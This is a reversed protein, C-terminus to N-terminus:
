HRVSPGHAQAEVGAIGRRLSRPRVLDLVHREAEGGFDQTPQRLRVFVGLVLGLGCPLSRPTNTAATSVWQRDGKAKRKPLVAMGCLRLCKKAAEPASPRTPAVVERAAAACFFFSSPSIEAASSKIRSCPTRLRM